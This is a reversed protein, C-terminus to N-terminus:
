GCLTISIGLQLFLSVPHDIQRTPILFIAVVGSSTFRAFIKLIEQGSCGSKRKKRKLEAEDALGRNALSKGVLCAKDSPGSLRYRSAKPPSGSASLWYVEQTKTDESM